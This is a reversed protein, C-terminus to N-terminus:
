AATALGTATATQDTTLHHFVTRALRRKLCRLAERNSMGESKKKEYYAKGLSGELRVQTIAIRHLATNLQRNGSRTMRVRGATSGSWVPIPWRTACPGRCCCGPWASDPVPGDLDPALAAAFEGSMVVMNGNVNLKCPAALAAIIFAIRRM